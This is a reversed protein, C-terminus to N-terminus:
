QGISGLFQEVEAFSEAQFNSLLHDGGTYSIHRCTTRGKLDVTHCIEEAMPKAPWVNDEAGSLLLIPGNINEVEIRARIVAQANTLSAAHRNTFGLRDREELAIYPVFPLGDGQLSWSSPSAMINAIDGPNGQWVVHSPALAVVAKYHEDSAALVLALEAGKSLGYLIVGDNRTNPQNM